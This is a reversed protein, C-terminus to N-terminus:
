YLIRLVLEKLYEHDVSGNIGKFKLDTEKLLSIIRMCEQFTYNNIGKKYNSVFFPHVKIKEAILRDSLNSLSHIIMLKSFFSFLVGIIPPLPFKRPNTIFYNVISIIKKTDKEALANQLEFNNYERHVGIHEQVDALKIVPETIVNSLKIIANTIKSLNNGLSDILLIEASKEISINKNSLQYHIWYSIKQGYVLKSEVVVGNKQFLKVWKKRKDITKNNYCLVFITTDVTNTLYNVLESLDTLKNAEKVLVLQRSGTMPFSKLTSILSFINIEKGYFVKQNFVKESEPITYKVFYSSIMDIFFSEEGYILYNSSLNNNKISKLLSEINM